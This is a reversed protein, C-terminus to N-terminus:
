VDRPSPSTYLLCADIEDRSKPAYDASRTTSTAREPQFKARHKIMHKRECLVPGLFNLVFFSKFYILCNSEATGQSQVGQHNQQYHEYEVIYDDLLARLLGYGYDEEKGECWKLYEGFGFAVCLRDCLNRAVADFIAAGSELQTHCEDFM